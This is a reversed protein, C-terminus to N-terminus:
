QYEEPSSPVLSAAGSRRLDEAEGSPPLGLSEQQAVAQAVLRQGVDFVHEFRSPSEDANPILPIHLTTREGCLPVVRHHKTM